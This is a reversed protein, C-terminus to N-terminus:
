AILSRKNFYYIGTGFVILNLLILGIADIPITTKKFSSFRPADEIDIRINTEDYNYKSEELNEFDGILEEPVTTFFQYGFANKRELYEMIHQRYIRVKDWFDIFESKISTTCFNECSSTFIANPLFFTFGKFVKLQKLKENEFDIHNNLLQDQLSFIKPLFRKNTKLFKAMLTKDCIAFKNIAMYELGKEGDDLPMVILCNGGGTM